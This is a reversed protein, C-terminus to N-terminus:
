KGAADPLPVQQPTRLYAFLDLVESETLNTLLGEPMMSVPAIERSEISSKAIVVPQEQNAVRLSLQRENEGDLVGSYLRGEDTLVLVMRYADQIVASPTLVNGLVYELNTRNAGTIDPGIRGGEDYMTHCTLCTRQFVARGRSPDANAIAEDTLLARYKTFAAEVDVSLEDIPGWVDVFSNGVVRRLQRAVYAPV